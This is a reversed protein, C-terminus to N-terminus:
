EDSFLLKNLDEIKVHDEDEGLIIQMIKNITENQESLTEKIEKNKESALQEILPEMEEFRKIKYLEEDRKIDKIEKLADKIQIKYAGMEGKCYRVYSELEVIKDIRNKSLLDENEKRQAVFSDMQTIFSDLLCSIEESQHIQMSQLINNPIDMKEM